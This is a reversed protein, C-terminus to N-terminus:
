VIVVEEELKVKFERWVKEKIQAILKLVDKCSANGTNVIWNAHKESVKARGTMKGKFGANEILYGANATSPNKFISGATKAKPQGERSKLIEKLKEKIKEKKEKKLSLVANLVIEGTNKFRSSRYDFRCDKNDFDYIKNDKGLAKVKEVVQSISGQKTGANGAIAGGVTGPVGALCEIGSLSNKLAIHQLKSLLLGSNALIKTEKIRLEQNKNKITLGKIGRDSVLINSGGSFVFYPIELKRAFKVAKILAETTGAIYFVEAPGGIGFTTHKSMPENFVLNGKGLIRILERKIKNQM